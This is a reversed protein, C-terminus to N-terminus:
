AAKALSVTVDTAGLKVRDGHKLVHETVLNGNLLTGNASQLDKVTPVGDYVEIACHERSVEPDRLRVDCKGRGLVVRPKELRYARPTQGPEAITLTVVEAGLRSKGKARLQKVDTVGTDSLEGEAPFMMTKVPPDAQDGTAESPMLIPEVSQVRGRPRNVHECCPCAADVSYGDPADFTTRCAECTITM